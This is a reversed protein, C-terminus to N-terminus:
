ITRVPSKDNTKGNRRNELQNILVAGAVCAMCAVTIWDPSEGSLLVWSIVVGFVPVLFKWMNLESVKVRKLWYFWISFATASVFALWGLAIFFPLPPIEGPLGEITIAMVLLVAGGFSM